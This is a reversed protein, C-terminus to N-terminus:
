SAYAAGITVRAPATGGSSLQRPPAGDDEFAVGIPPVGTRPASAAEASTAALLAEEVGNRAVPGTRGYGPRGRQQQQQQGPARASTTRPPPRGIPTFGPPLSATSNAALPEAAPALGPGGGGAGGSGGGGNGETNELMGPATAATNLPPPRQEVPWAAPTGVLGKMFAVFRKGYEVPNVASIQHRDQTVSKFAHEIKKTANYPTLIDIISLFYLETGPRNQQDTALIGGNDAVFLSKHGRRSNVPPLQLASIRDAAVIEPQQLARRVADARSTSPTRQLTQRNPEFVRIQQDRWPGNGKTLDHVGILLSYDMIKNTMLFLMDRELQDTFMKAKEPGLMLRRNMKLWNIDKLVAKKGKRAIDEPSTERGITSGKLDFTLHIDYNPPFVNAMVVFHIPKQQGPIKMRHLGYYRALLTNPNKSIYEVYDPLIKLLLKQEAHHISKIIMSYDHSYYLYSGSRGPSSLESMIYKGTLSSLYDSATLGFATRIKRFVMPCYDKFKFDYRQSPELEKGTVDSALKHQAKFDDPVLPRDEKSECRGVSLRVGTLLHYMFAYKQHHKDIKNGIGVHESVKRTLTRRRVPASSSTPSGPPMEGGASHDFSTSSSLAPNNSSEALNPHGTHRRVVPPRSANALGTVSGVSHPRPMSGTSTPTAPHAPLQLPENRGLPSGVHPPPPSASRAAATTAVPTQFSVGSRVSHPRERSLSDSGPRRAPHPTIGIPATGNAAAGGASTSPAPFRLPAPDSGGRRSRTRRPPPPLTGSPTTTNAAMPTMTKTTAVITATTTTAVFDADPFAAASSTRMPPAADGYSAALASTLLSASGNPTALATHGMSTTPLTTLSAPPAPVPEDSSPLLVAPQQRLAKVSSVRRPPPPLYPVAPAPADRPTPMQSYVGSDNSDVSGSEMMRATAFPPPPPSPAGIAPMASMALQPM